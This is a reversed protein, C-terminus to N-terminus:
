RGLYSNTIAVRYHGLDSSIEERIAKDLVEVFDRSLGTERSADLIWEEGFKGTKVPPDLYVGTQAIWLHSFRAHAYAHRNGHYNYSLGSEKRFDELRDYLWRRYELWRMDAPVLSGRRFVDQHEQVFDATAEVAESNLLSAVRDRGNKTGDMRNLALTGGSIDRGALKVLASERLRLGGYEQLSVSHYLAQFMLKKREDQATAAKIETWARFANRSEASNSLNENKYRLGRNVGHGQASIVLDQRGLYHCVQNVASVYSSTTSTSLDGATLIKKLAGVWSVMHVPTVKELANVNFSAQLHDALSALGSRIQEECKTGTGNLKATRHALAARVRFDILRRGAGYNRRDRSDVLGEM